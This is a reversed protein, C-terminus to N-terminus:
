RSKIEGLARASREQVEPHEDELTRVLHPVAKEDKSIGLAYAAYRRLYINDDALWLVYFATDGKKVIDALIKVIYREYRRYESTSGLNSMSRVYELKEILEAVAPLGIEILADQACYTVRDEPHVLLDILVDVARADNLKTLRTIISKATFECARFYPDLERLGRILEEVEDM